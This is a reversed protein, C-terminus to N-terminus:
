RTDAIVSSKMLATLHSSFVPCKLIIWDLRMSDIGYIIYNFFDM